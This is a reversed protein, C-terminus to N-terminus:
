LLYRELLLRRIKGLGYRNLVNYARKIRSVVDQNTKQPNLKVLKRVDGRKKSSQSHGVITSFVNYKKIVLERATSIYPLNKEYLNSDIVTEILEIARGSDTINIPTLSAPPFYDLINPCGYYIPYSWGLFADALKETFYHPISCNELVIHYKYPAIAKQKDDVECFGRGFLDIQDGFHSVLKDLFLLRQRHGRSITKDSSIVSMLKPKKVDEVVFNNIEDYTLYDGVEGASNIQVGFHWPLGQQSVIVSSHPLDVHSSIVSSFQDLFEPIYLNFTPPEGTILVVHDQPCIASECKPLDEYVFWWDCEAVDQNVFFICDNWIGSSLPTQRILPWHPSDTTLKIKIM